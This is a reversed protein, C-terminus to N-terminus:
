DVRLNDVYEKLKDIPKSPEFRPDLLFSQKIYSWRGFDIGVLGENIMFYDVDSKYFNPYQTKVYNIIHKKYDQSPMKLNLVHDVVDVEIYKYTFNLLAYYSFVNTFNLLLEDVDEYTIDEWLEPLCAMLLVSYTNNVNELNCYIFELHGFSLIEDLYKDLFYRDVPFYEAEQRAKVALEESLEKVRNSVIIM